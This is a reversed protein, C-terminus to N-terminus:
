RPSEPRTTGGHQLSRQLGLRDAVARVSSVSGARVSLLGAYRLTVPTGVLHPAIDPLGGAYDGRQTVHFAVRDATGFLEDIQVEGVRILASPDSGASSTQVGSLPGCLSGSELWNRAVGEAALDAPEVRVDWPAPHPAEIPDCIGGRLQRKRALYDEEAWGTCLKGSAIRFLAVGQWAAPRGTDRRSAGHETFRMAVADTTLLVEHVTVGLGPFQEFQTLIASRYQTDRGSIVHGGVNLRYEPVMIRPLATWQQCTLFEVAFGRLLTALPEIAGARSELDDPIM